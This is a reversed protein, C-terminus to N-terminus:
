RWVCYGREEAEILKTLPDDYTIFYREAIRPPLRDIDFHFAFLSRDQGCSEIWERQSQVSNAPCLGKQIKDLRGREPHMPDLPGGQRKRRLYERSRVRYKELHYQCYESSNLVKPKACKVCLGHLRRVAQTKAKRLAAAKAHKKQSAKVKDKNKARWGRM